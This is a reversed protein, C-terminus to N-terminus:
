ADPSTVPRALKYPSGGTLIADLPGGYPGKAKITISQKVQGRKQVAPSARLVVGYPIDYLPAVNFGSAYLFLDAVLSGAQLGPFTTEATNIVIQITISLSRLGPDPNDFGGSESDAGDLEMASEDASWEQMGKLVAGPPNGNGPWGASTPTLGFRGKLYQGSTSM